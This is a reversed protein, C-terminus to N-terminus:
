PKGQAGHCQGGNADRTDEAGDTKAFFPTQALSGNDHPQRRYASGLQVVQAVVSNVRGIEACEDATTIQGITKLVHGETTTTPEIQGGRYLHAHAATTQGQHFAAGGVVSIEVSEVRVAHGIKDFFRVAASM